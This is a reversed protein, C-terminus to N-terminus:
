STIRATDIREILRLHGDQDRKWGIRRNTKVKGNREAATKSGRWCEVGDVGSIEGSGIDFCAPEGPSKTNRLM